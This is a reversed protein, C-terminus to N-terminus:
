DSCQARSHSTKLHVARQHLACLTVLNGAENGGGESSLEIHHLDLFRVNRRGPVVCYQCGQYNRADAALTPLAL